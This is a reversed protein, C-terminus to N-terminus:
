SEINTIGRRIQIIGALRGFWALQQTKHCVITVESLKDLAQRLTDVGM